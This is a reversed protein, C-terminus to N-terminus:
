VETPALDPNGKIAVAQLVTSTTSGATTIDLRVYRRKGRYGFWKVANDDSAGFTVGTAIDGLIDDSAVATPASFGSDDSEVLSPTATGAAIAGAQLVFTISQFGKTDLVIGNTVTDSGITVSDLASVPKLVTKQDKTAM